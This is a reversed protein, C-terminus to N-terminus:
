KNQALLGIAEELDPVKLGSIKDTNQVAVEKRKRVQANIRDAADVTLSPVASIVYPLLM